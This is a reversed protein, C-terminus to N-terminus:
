IAPVKRPVVRPHGTVLFFSEVYLVQLAQAVEHLKSMPTAPTLPTLLTDKVRPWTSVLNRYAEMRAVAEVDNITGLFLEPPQGTLEGDWTGSVVESPFITALLVQHEAHLQPNDWIAPLLFRNLAILDYRFHLQHLEWLIAQMFVPPPNALHSVRSMMGRFSIDIGDNGAWTAGSMNNGLTDGFMDRAAKKLKAARTDAEPPTTDNPSSNLFAQWIKPGINHDPNQAIRGVWFPRLALWNALHRKLSDASSVNTFVAPEPFRYGSPMLPIKPHDLDAWKDRSQSGQGPTQARPARGGMTIQASTSRNPNCGQRSPGVESQRQEEEVAQMDAAFQYLRVQIHRNLGGPGRYCVPFPTAFAQTIRDPLVVSDPRILWVPVGAAFLRDAIQEHALNSNPLPVFDEHAPTYWTWSM